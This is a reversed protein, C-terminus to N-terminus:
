NQCVSVVIGIGNMVIIRCSNRHHFQLISRNILTAKLDFSCYPWVIETTLQREQHQNEEIRQKKLATWNNKYRKFLKCKQLAKKRKWSNNLVKHDGIRKRLNKKPIEFSALKWLEETGNLKTHWHITDNSRLCSM